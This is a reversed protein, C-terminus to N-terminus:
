FDLIAAEAMKSQTRLGNRVKYLGKWINMYENRNLKLFIPQYNVFNNFIKSIWYPPKRWRPNHGLTM